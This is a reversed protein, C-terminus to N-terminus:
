HAHFCNPLVVSLRTWSIVQRADGIAHTLQTDEFDQAAELERESKERHYAMQNNYFARAIEEAKEPAVNQRLLDRKLSRAAELIAKNMERYRAIVSHFNNM